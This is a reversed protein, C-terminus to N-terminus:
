QVLAVTQLGSEKTTLFPSDGPLQASEAREEALVRVDPRLDRSPLEESHRAAGTSPFLCAPTILVGSTIRRRILTGTSIVVEQRSRGGRCWWNVHSVHKKDDQYIHGINEFVKEDSLGEYPQERAFTLIEWLTVAFSWVDSKSTFKGM